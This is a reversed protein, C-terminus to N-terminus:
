DVAETFFYGEGPVTFIFKPTRPSDGLKRRLRVVLLDVSRDISGDRADYLTDMLKDRSMVRGPHGAFAELLRSENPTLGVLEGGSATLQHKRKDFTWGSFCITSKAATGKRSKGKPANGTSPIRRLLNRVRTLLEKPNFPKTLYDDAGIELGTLKDVEEKRATLFILGAPSRSRIEQALDFGSADPLNIDLVVLDVPGDDLTRRMSAGDIAESIRYGGAALTKAVVQRVLDDDEVVLVHRLLETETKM